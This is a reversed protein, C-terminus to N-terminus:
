DRRMHWEQSQERATCALAEKSGRFEPGPSQRRSLLLYSWATSNERLQEHHAEPQRAWSGTRRFVTGPGWGWALLRGSTM